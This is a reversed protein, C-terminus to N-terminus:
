PVVTFPTLFESPTNHKHADRSEQEGDKYDKGSEAPGDPSLRVVGIARRSYEFLRRTQDCGAVHLSRM